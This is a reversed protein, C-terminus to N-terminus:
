SSSGGSSPVMPKSALAFINLVVIQDNVMKAARIHSRATNQESTGINQTMEARIM